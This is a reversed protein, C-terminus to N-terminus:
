KEPDHGPGIAIMTGGAPREASGIAALQMTERSVYRAAGDAIEPDSVYYGRVENSGAEQAFGVVQVPHNAAGHGYADARGQDGEAAGLLDRWLAGANINAIVAQGAAIAEAIPALHALVKVQASVGMARFFHLQEAPTLGDAVVVQGGPGHGGGREARDVAHRGHLNLGLTRLAGALVATGRVDGERAPAFGRRAAEIDGVRVVARGQEVADTRPVELPPLHDLALQETPSSAAEIPTETPGEADM